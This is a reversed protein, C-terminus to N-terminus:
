KKVQAPTVTGPAKTESVPVKPEFLNRFWGGPQLAPLVFFKVVALFGTTYLVVAPTLIPLTSHSCDFGGTPLQSCGLSIFLAPVTVLLASAYTQFANLNWFQM